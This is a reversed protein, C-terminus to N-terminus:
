RKTVGRIVNAFNGYSVDAELLQFQNLLASLSHQLFLLVRELTRKDNASKQKSYSTGCRCSYDLIADLTQTTYATGGVLQGHTFTSEIM